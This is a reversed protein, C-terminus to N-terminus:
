SEEKQKESLFYYYKSNQPRIRAAPYSAELDRLADLIERKEEGRILFWAERATNLIPYTLTLRLTKLNKVENVAAFRGAERLASSGPFLSATHGDAGLGLLVLDFSPPDGLNRKLQMEYEEAAAEPRLETRWRYISSSAGHLVDLLNQKIMLFNSQSDDPPVYREDGIFLRTAGWNWEEKALAQYFSKPTSGGALAVAFFGRNQIAINGLRKWAKLLNDIWAPENDYEFFAVNKM